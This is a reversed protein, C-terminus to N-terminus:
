SYSSTPCSISIPQLLRGPRRTAAWDNAMASPSARRRRSPIGLLTPLGHGLAAPIAYRGRGCGLVRHHCSSEISLYRVAYRSASSRSNRPSPAFLTSRNCFFDSFLPFRTQYCLSGKSSLPPREGEHVCFNCFYGARPQPTRGWESM